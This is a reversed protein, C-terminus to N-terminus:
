WTASFLIVVPRDGKITKDYDEESNLVLKSGGAQQSAGAARARVAAEYAEKNAQMQRQQEAQEADVRKKTESAHAEKVKAAVERSDEDTQEDYDIKLGTQFDTHAEEWRELKAYARARIKYAKGSDPNVALAATCDRATARPRDLKLLVQARRSYLMASVCGLAIAESYKGLALELNGDELADTAQQKLGNQKDQQEESLDEVGAPALDPFALEDGPSLDAM